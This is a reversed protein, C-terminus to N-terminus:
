SLADVIIGDSRRNVIHRLIVFRSSEAARNAVNLLLRCDRLVLSFFRRLLHLIEFCNVFEQLLAACLRAIVLVAV